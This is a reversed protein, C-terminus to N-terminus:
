MYQIYVMCWIFKPPKHCKGVLQTLDNAHMRIRTPWDSVCYRPNMRWILLYFTKFRKESFRKLVNKGIHRSITMQQNRRIHTPQSRNTRFGSSVRGNNIQPRTSAFDRKSSSIRKPGWNLRTNIAGVWHCAAGLTPMQISHVFVIKEM